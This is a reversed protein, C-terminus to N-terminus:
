ELTLPYIQEGEVPLAPQVGILTWSPFVSPTKAVATGPVLEVVRERQMWDADNAVINMGFQKGEYLEMPKLNELPIAIFYRTLKKDDDRIIKVWEAPMVGATVGTPTYWAYSSVQTDGMAFGYEYCNGVYAATKDNLPDISIQICDGNYITADKQIQIHLNDYCDAMIYLNNEDWKTLARVAVNAQEWSEATTSDAPANVYVPYANSWDSIDGDFAEPTMEHDAKTVVAFSLPETKNVFDMGDTGQVVLGFDYQNFAKQTKGTVTFDYTQTSLAELAFPQETSALSWGEPPTLMIKGSLGVTDLNELQVTVKSLGEVDSEAVVLKADIRSKIIVPAHVTKVTKGDMVVNFTYKANEDAWVKDIVVQMRVQTSEGGKLTFPESTSIVNGDPDVMQLTATMPLDGYNYVSPNITTKEALNVTGETSPLQVLLDDMLVTEVQSFESAFGALRQAVYDWALIVGAKAKNKETMSKVKQANEALQRAFVQIAECLSVTGAPTTGTREEMKENAEAVASGGALEGVETDEPVTLVYYAMWSKGTQHVVYLLASTQADTLNLEGNKVMEIITNGIDYHAQLGAKATEADALVGQEAIAEARQISEEFLPRISTMDVDELVGLQKDTVQRLTDALARGGYADDLGDIFVPEEALKIMNSTYAYDGVMDYVIGQQGLDIESNEVKSWVIMMVHGNKVYMHAAVDEGFDVQGLYLAGATREFLAKDSFLAPKYTGNNRVIGFNDENLEINPGDTLFTYENNINVGNSEAVVFQKFLQIAQKEESSGTGGTHTPWGIETIMPEKFGGARLIVNHVGDIVSQYGEDVTNPYIYPHYSVADLSPHAGADYIDQVFKSDGGAVAAGAVIADPRVKEVEHKVVEVLYTYDIPNYEPLWFQINPENYVELYKIDKYRTAFNAVWQAFGDYEAKSAPGHKYESYDGSFPLGSYLPNGYAFLVVSNSIDMNKFLSTWRDDGSFDYVGKRTSEVQQWEHGLRVSKAGLRQLLPTYETITPTYCFGKGSFEEMFQKQYDLMVAITKEATCVTTGGSTVVVNVLHNGQKLNSLKIEKVVHQGPMVRLSEPQASVGDISHHIEYVKHRDGSLSFNVKVVVDRTNYLNLSPNGFDVTVSEYDATSDAAFVPVASFLVTLVLLLAIIKKPM